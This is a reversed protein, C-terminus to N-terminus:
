SMRLDNAFPHYEPPFDIEIKDERYELVMDLQFVQYDQEARTRVIEEDSQDSDDLDSLCEKWLMEYYNELAFCYEAILESDAKVVEDYDVIYNQNMIWEIARPDSFSYGFCFEKKDADEFVKKCTAFFSRWPVLRHMDMFVIDMLQLYVKDGIKIKM